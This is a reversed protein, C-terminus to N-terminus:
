WLKAFKELGGLITSFIPHCGCKVIGAWSIKNQRLVTKSWCACRITNRRQLWRKPLFRITTIPWGSSSLSRRSRSNTWAINWKWPKQCLIGGKGFYYQRLIETENPQVACGGRLFDKGRFFAFIGRRNECSHLAPPYFHNRRVQYAISLFSLCFTYHHTSFPPAM